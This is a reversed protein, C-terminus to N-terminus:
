VSAPSAKTVLLELMGETTNEILKANMDHVLDAIGSVEPIGKGPISFVFKAGDSVPRVGVRLTDGTQTSALAAAFSSHLLRMLDFKSAVLSCPECDGVALGVQKLDAMRTALAVTLHLLEVVDIEHVDEDTSHAMQNMNKVIVDGRKVQGQISDAAKKLREPELPVGREAMLTFDHILGAAENIVAFVNKIEHSVSASVRGFFKLGERTESAVAM